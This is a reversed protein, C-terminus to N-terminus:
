SNRVMPYHTHTWMKTYRLKIWTTKGGIVVKKKKHIFVNDHLIAPVSMKYTRAGDTHLIVKRNKLFKSAVPKWDRRRIPGPGPAQAATSKPSLRFLLLTGPHGREVIGGWQEWKAAKKDMPVEKGLDVEDAEVDAWAQHAGCKINKQKQCVHQARVCELNHYIREHTQSKHGLHLAHLSQSVPLLVAFCQPKNALNQIYSNGSGHFFLLHFDHPQIRRKCQRRGRKHVWVGKEKFYHLRGLTGTGCHPCTQGTWAPLMGDKTLKWILPCRALLLSISSLLAM